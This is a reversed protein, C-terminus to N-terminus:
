VYAFSTFCFCFLVVRTIVHLLANQSFGELARLYPFVISVVVLAKNHNNVMLSYNIIM